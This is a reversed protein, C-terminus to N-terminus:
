ADRTEQLWEKPISGVACKFGASIAWDTYRKKHASTLWNDAMFVVRLDKDPNCRKINTLQTRTESTCKGKAEIVIGNPLFFDPTYRRRSMVREGLCSDCLGRHVPLTYDWKEQEYGFEVGMDYLQTALRHELNSRFSKRVPKRVKSQGM